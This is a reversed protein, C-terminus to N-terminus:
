MDKSIFQKVDNAFQEPQEWHLAHGTEQYVKLVANQLGLELAEQAVQSFVTDQNGRLILTPTTINSLQNSYDAALIGSFAARWVRAPLKLSEKVVYDLFDEPVPHYITSLQFERAFEDTVPDCLKELAEELERVGEARANTGAAILVLRSLRKPATLAVQQGVLSGMSHGALTAQAIDMTDMFAVVDDAFDPMSYGTEPKDSDGHGRQDLAYCTYGDLFYPLVPSYSFWSDTVGHLFIITRGSGNGQKAYKLRVGTNLHADGFSIPQSLQMSVKPKM